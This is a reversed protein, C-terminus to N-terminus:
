VGSVGAYALLALALAKLLYGIIYGPYYYYPNRKAAETANPKPNIRKFGHGLAVGFAMSDGEEDFLEPEETYKDKSM